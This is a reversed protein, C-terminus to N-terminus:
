MRLRRTRPFVCPQFEKASAQIPKLQPRCRLGQRRPALCQGQSGKAYHDFSQQYDATDECAKGLAFHFHLRNVQDLALDDLQSHMAALEADTFRFTKLNALSWYAEGFGPDLAISQRYAEISGDQRGATKLVHGYSLWVKSNGPYEDLLQRYMQSSREYEGIRSLIVACLNRYSPSHADGALLSEIEILAAASDNRRNLLTAYNYRAASFSPALELCRLLLKEADQDQGCRVAVEALMRIAPVDTPARKLHSKLLGEAKPVDNKVMAAAAQQLLPDRTSNQIHRAYAADGREADGTALLHDALVRWAETHDPKLDVTRQLAVIADDGRGVGALTLGHEFHAAAWVGQLGLLSEIVALASQPDSSHRHATALLLMAPPHNPVEALIEGAQKAALEPDHKLLRAAHAM